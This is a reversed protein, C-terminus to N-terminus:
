VGLEEGGKYPECDLPPPKDCPSLFTLRQTMILNLTPLLSLATIGTFKSLMHGPPPWSAMWLHGLFPFGLCLSVHEGNKKTVWSQSSLCLGTSCDALPGLESHRPCLLSCVFWRRGEGPECEGPSVSPSGSIFLFIHFCLPWLQTLQPSVSCFYIVHISPQLEVKM